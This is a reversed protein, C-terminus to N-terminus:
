GMKDKQNICLFDIWLYQTQGSERPQLSGDNLIDYVNSTVRLLANGVTISHSLEESGWRYSIANYEPAYALQFPVLDYLISGDAHKLLQVLRIMREHETVPSTRYDYEEQIATPSPLPAASSKSEAM